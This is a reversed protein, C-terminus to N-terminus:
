MVDRSVGVRCPQNAEGGVERRRRKIIFVFVAGKEPVVGEEELREPGTVCGTESEVAFPLVSAQM